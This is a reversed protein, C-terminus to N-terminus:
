RTNAALKPAIAEAPFFDAKLTFLFTRPASLVLGGSGYGAIWYGRNTLNEVTLRATMKTKEVWFVYRAGIDFRDWAPVNFRNANDYAAQGSHIWASTLTFDRNWPLDYEAFLRYEDIPVAPARKGDFTGGATRVLKADIWSAGAIVRFGRVPEGFVNLELGRNVQRGNQTYINTPGDLYQNAKSIEFLAVAAGFNGGDYKAGLEKQESVLAPFIQGPNNATAPAIGGRELAEIYNGYVSVSPALRVLFGAAPTTAWTDTLATQAGTVTNFSAQYVNTRRVGATLNLREDLISLTDTIYGGSTRSETQRNRAGFVPFVSQPPFVPDYINFNFAPNVPLGPQSYIDEGIFNGGFSIRHRIPGTDFLGRVGANAADRDWQTNTAGGSCTTLGSVNQITNFCYFNYKTNQVSHGYAAYATWDNSLDYEARAMGAQTKVNSRAWDPALQTEPSPARVLFPLAAAQTAYYPDGRFTQDRYFYDVDARFREGRYDAGVSIADDKRYGGVVPRGERHVGNVRVGFEKKEGFRDGVDFAGSGVADSIYGGTVTAVPGWYPAKKTVFNVSGGVGGISGNLLANAGKILEVRDLMELPPTSQTLLGQLGNVAARDGSLYDVFGRIRAYDVLSNSTTRALSVAPDTLLVETVTTLQRSEIYEKTFSATSFPTSM